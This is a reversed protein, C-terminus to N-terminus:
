KRAVLYGLGLLVLGNCVLWPTTLWGALPLFTLSVLGFCAQYLLQAGAGIAFCALMPRLRPVGYAAVALLMPLLASFGLLNVGSGLVTQGWAPVAHSAIGVVASSAAGSPLLYPLFFLGSAGMVLALLSGLGLRIGLQAGLALRGLLVLAILGGLGLQASGHGLQVAKLAAPASIIGYGYRDDHRGEGTIVHLTAASKKPARASEKLIREVADPDTVGQGVILAAVGAAHPAAM